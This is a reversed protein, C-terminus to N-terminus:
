EGFVKFADLGGNDFGDGIPSVFGTQCITYVILPLHPRGLQRPTPDLRPIFLVRELARLHLVIQLPPLLKLSFYSSKFPLQLVQVLVVLLLFAPLRSVQWAM